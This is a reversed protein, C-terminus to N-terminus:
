MEAAKEQAALWRQWAAPDGGLDEGALRTLNDRSTARIQPDDSQLAAILLRAAELRAKPNRAGKGKAATGGDGFERFAALVGTLITHLRISEGWLLLVYLGLAATCARLVATEGFTARLWASGPVWPEFVLAALVLLLFVPTLQRFLTDFGGPVRM